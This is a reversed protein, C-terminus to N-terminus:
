RDLLGLERAIILQQIESTGEWITGVKADRFYREVPLETMYGYGGHVQLVDGTIRVAAETAFLKAMSVEKTARVGDDYLRAARQILLRAADIEVAMRAIKFAITQHRAIPKGFAVREMAYTRAAEFAAQAIGLSLAAIYLRNADLVDMLRLFNVDEGGLRSTRPVRCEEFALEGTESSRLGLKGLKRAVHFGPTGREVVYLNIGLARELGRRDARDSSVAAVLVQDAAPGNSIFTKAGNLVYTDGEDRATTALALLDSGAGPETLAMAVLVDGAMLPELSAAQQAPTGLKMLLSPGLVSPMVAIAFGACVRAVEAAVICQMWTDGGAGRLREPVGIRFLGLAAMAPLVRERPFREESEAAGVLPRLERECFDRVTAHFLRHEESHELGATTSLEMRTRPAFDGTEMARSLALTRAPTERLISRRGRDGGPTVETM